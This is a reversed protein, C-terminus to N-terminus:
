VPSVATAKDAAASPAVNGRLVPVFGHATTVGHTLLHRSYALSVARRRLVAALDARTRADNENHGQIVMLMMWSEIISPPVNCLLQGTLSWRLATASAVLGVVVLVGALVAYEHSCVRGVGLSARLTVRRLRRRLRMYPGPEAAMVAPPERVPLVPLIEECLADAGALRSLESEERMQFQAAMNRMVFGDSMGILGAYTGSLLWWTDDFHLAPGIAAWGILVVVLFVVGALSGVFDAYYNVARQIRSVRPAAIVIVPHSSKDGTLVRLTRELEEDTRRIKDLCAKVYDGHRERVCCLFAFVFLMLASSSSNMYLQWQPSWGQSPGFALWVIVGIWFLLITSLDGAISSLRKAAKGIRTDDPLAVDIDVEEVKGDEPATGAGSSDASSRRSAIQRLLVHVTECRSRLVGVLVLVEDHAALQQRVLFSDLVYTGIAQIDSILVNWDANKGFGVIGLVAWAVLGATVSLFFALSGSWRVVADLWSDLRGRSPLSGASFRVSQTGPAAGDSAVAAMKPPVHGVDKEEKSAADDARMCLTDESAASALHEPPVLTSQHASASRGVAVSVISPPHGPRSSSSSAIIPAVLTLEPRAGPAALAHLIGRLM